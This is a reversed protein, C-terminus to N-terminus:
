LLGLEGVIPVGDPAVGGSLLCEAPNAYGPLVQALQEPTVGVHKRIIEGFVSRYDVSRQLYRKSAQFMSGSPGITWSGNDCQYVGGKLRGGGLLMAGAEAHDTGQSGNEKTTRGFESMTIIVTNNWLEPNLDQFFKRLAYFAWGLWQMRNAHGGTLSGQGNHTDFGDLQTGAVVADTKGLILAATKLSNFFGYCDSRFGKQNTASSVPFLHTTGDTDYYENGTVGIKKLEEISAELGKGTEFLLKRHDKDPHPISHGDGVSRLLKGKDAGQDVVGLLDYRSPDSLNPLAVPGRLIRPNTSQVSVAPFRRGLHLGTDVVTRYFIGTSLFNDRPVGCEWYRQSDFHSRSQRAYGVRHVLALHGANYLPALDKLGPHVAAFHNGLDIARTLDPKEPMRGNVSTLPDPKPIFLTPRTTNNYADDGSPIVMNLSDNGGRLFIFLIKGASAPIATQAAAHRLFAPVNLAAAAASALAIRLNSELFRRRTILPYM